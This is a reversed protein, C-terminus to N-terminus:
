FVCKVNLIGGGLDHRKYSLTSFYQEVRCAVSSFIIRCMRMANQIGLAVFMCESYEVAVITIRVRRVDIRVNGTKYMDLCM